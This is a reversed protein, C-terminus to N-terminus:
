RLRNQKEFEKRLNDMFNKSFRTARFKVDSSKDGQQHSMKDLSKQALFLIINELCIHSVCEIKFSTVEKPIYLM